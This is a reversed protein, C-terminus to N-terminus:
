FALGSEPPIGGIGGPIGPPIAPIGGNGGPTWGLIWPLIRGMGGLTSVPIGGLRSGLYSGAEWRPDLALDRRDRGPDLGPSWM